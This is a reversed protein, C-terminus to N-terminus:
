IAGCYAALICISCSVTQVSTLLLTETKLSDLVVFGFLLIFYLINLSAASNLMKTTEKNGRKM